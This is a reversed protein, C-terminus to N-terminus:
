NFSGFVGAATGSFYPRMQIRAQETHSSSGEKRPLEHLWPILLGIGVGTVAGVLVDSLFHASSVVRLAGVTGAAAYTFIWIPAILPSDPHRLMFMRSYATAMAFVVSTHGSYFSMAAEGETRFEDSDSEDYVYPRPRRVIMAVMSNVSLSVAMTELLVVLDVGFGRWGDRPKSVGVDIADFVFTLPIISFMVYDSIDGAVQSGEAMTARDFANVDKIDCELGCWPGDGENVMIRPISTLATSVIIVGIDLLLNVRYPSQNPRYYGEEAPAEEDVAFSSLPMIIFFVVVTILVATKSTKM